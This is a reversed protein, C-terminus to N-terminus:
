DLLYSLTQGLALLLLAWALLAPLLSKSRPKKPERVEALELAALVRRTAWLELRLWVIYCLLAVVLFTLAWLLWTDFLTNLLM